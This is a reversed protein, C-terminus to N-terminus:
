CILFSSQRRMRPLLHCLPFTACLETPHNHNRHRARNQALPPLHHRREHPRRFRIAPMPLPRRSLDLERGPLIM